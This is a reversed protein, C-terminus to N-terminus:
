HQQMKICCERAAIAERPFSERPFSIGKMWPQNSENPSQCTGLLLNVPDWHGDHLNELEIWM